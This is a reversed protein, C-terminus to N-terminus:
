AHAPEMSRRSRGPTKPAPRASIRAAVAFGIGIALCSLDFAVFLRDGDLLSPVLWRSTTLANVVPIGTWFAAAIGFLVTWARRAPLGLQALALLGWTWFM